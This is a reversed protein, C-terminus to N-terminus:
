WKVKDPDDVSTAVKILEKRQLAGMDKLLEFKPELVQSVETIGVWANRGTKKAAYLARDAVDVVPQWTLQQPDIEFFPFFSFGISCTIDIFRDHGIHFRTQEVQSRLREALRPGFEADTERCVMLFEEGGWRVPIDGRRCNNQILRSIQILVLDGAAHGFSDNIQKFHDVDVMLFLLSRKEGRERARAISEIDKDLFNALFRRNRLSTLSDTLSAEELKSNIEVLEDQHIRIQENQIELKNKLKMLKSQANDALRNMKQAHRLLKNFKQSLDQYELWLENFSEPPEELIRRVHEQFAVEKIFVADNYDAQGM